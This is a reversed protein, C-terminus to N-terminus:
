LVFGSLCSTWAKQTSTLPSTCELSLACVYKCGRWGEGVRVRGRERDREREWERERGGCVCVHVSPGGEWVRTSLSRHLASPAPHCSLPLLATTSQVFGPFSHATRPLLAATFHRSPLRGAVGASVQLYAGRVASPSFFFFFFFASSSVSFLFAFFCLLLLNLLRQHMARGHSWTRAAEGRLKDTSPMVRQSQMIHKMACGVVGGGGGGGGWVGVGGGGGRFFDWRSHSAVYFFTCM